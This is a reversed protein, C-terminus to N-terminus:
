DWFQYIGNGPTGYRGNKAKGSLTLFSIGNKLYQSANQNLTNSGGLANTGPNANVGSTVVLSGLAGEMAGM